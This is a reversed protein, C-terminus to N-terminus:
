VVKKVEVCGESPLLVALNIFQLEHLLLNEEECLTYHPRVHRWTPGPAMDLMCVCYYNNVSLFLM